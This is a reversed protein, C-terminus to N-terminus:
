ADIWVLQTMRQYGLRDAVREHQVHPAHGHLRDLLHGLDDILRGIASVCEVLRASLREAFAHDAHEVLGRQRQQRADAVLPMKSTSAPSGGAVLGSM